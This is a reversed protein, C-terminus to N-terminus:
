LLLGGGGGLKRGGPTPIGTLTILPNVEANIASPFTRSLALPATEITGGDAFVM